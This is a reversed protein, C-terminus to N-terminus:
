AWLVSVDYPEFHRDHTVLTAGEVQAQAILMRDFPDGHHSPLSLLQETHRLTITLELFDSSRVMKSFSDDLRLKGSGQKIAAEWGSAASVWVIEATGIARRLAPKLRPSNTRWWLVVHTDLLLKV